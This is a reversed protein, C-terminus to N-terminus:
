VQKGGDIVEFKKYNREHAKVIILKRQVRGPGCPQWRPHPMVAGKEVRVLRLFEADFGIEIVPKDTVVNAYRSPNKKYEPLNKYFTTKFEENPNVVYIILNVVLHALKRNRDSLETEITSLTKPCYEHYTMRFLSELINEGEKVEVGYYTGETKLSNDSISMRICRNGNELRSTDVLVYGVGMFGSLEFYARFDEPIQETGMDAEVRSLVDLLPRSVIYNKYTNGTVLGRRYLSESKVMNMSWTNSLFHQLLKGCITPDAGDKSFKDVVDGMCLAGTEPNYTAKNTIVSYYYVPDRLDRKRYNMLREISLKRM